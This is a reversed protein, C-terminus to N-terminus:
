YFSNLYSKLVNAFEEPSHPELAGGAINNHGGGNLYEEAFKGLQLNVGPRAWLSVRNSTPDLIAIVDAYHTLTERVENISDAHRWSNTSTVVIITDKHRTHWLAQIGTREIMDRFLIIPRRPEMLALQRNVEEQTLGLEFMHNLYKTGERTHITLGYTDSWLSAFFLPHFLEHEMLICATSPLYQVVHQESIAHGNVNNCHHDVSFLAKNQELNVLWEEPLKTRQSTGSSDLVLCADFDEVIASHELPIEQIIWQFRDPLSEPCFLKVTTNPSQIRSLMYWGAACALGDIDPPWHTALLCSGSRNIPWPLFATDSVM